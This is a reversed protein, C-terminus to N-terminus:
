SQLEKSLVAISDMITCVKGEAWNAHYHMDSPDESCQVSFCASKVCSLDEKIKNLKNALTNNDEATRNNVESFRPFYFYMSGGYIANECTIQLIEGKRVMAQVTELRERSHNQQSLEIFSNDLTLLLSELKIGPTHDIIKKIENEYINSTSM